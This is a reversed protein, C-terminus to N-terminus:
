ECAESCDAKHNTLCALCHASRLSESMRLPQHPPWGFWIYSQVDQQAPKSPRALRQQEAGPLNNQDQRPQQAAASKRPISADRKEAPQGVPTDGDPAKPASAEQPPLYDRDDAPVPPTVSPQADPKSTQEQPRPASAPLVAQPQPLVQPEAAPANRNEVHVTGEFAHNTPTTMWSSLIVFGALGALFLGSGLGVARIRAARAAGAKTPRGREDIYGEDYAKRKRPNRLIEAANSIETFALHMVDDAYAGGPRYTQELVKYASSLTKRPHTPLCGSNPTCSTALAAPRRRSIRDLCSVGM